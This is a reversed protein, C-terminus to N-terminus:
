HATDPRSPHGESRRRRKHLRLTRRFDCGTGNPIFGLQVEPNTAREEIMLGNIVENLTGDGGVCVVCQAGESVALRAFETADGPATTIFSNFGGLRKEALERIQPWNKGVSGRAAHPNVIFVRKKLPDCSPCSGM